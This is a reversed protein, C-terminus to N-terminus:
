YLRLAEEGGSNRRIQRIEFPFFSLLMYGMLLSFTLAFKRSAIFWTIDVDAHTQFFCPVILEAVFEELLYSAQILRPCRV